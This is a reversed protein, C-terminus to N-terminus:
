VSIPASIPPHPYYDYLEFDAFNFDNISKVRPNIILFPIQKPERSLQVKVQELHNLYIHTDGLSLILEGLDLMTINAIMMTLLAYSAINFPLGLFTDVSRQYMSCSLMNNNVYFQFLLHCPPLAAQDVEGPNWATVIMRRDNPNSKISDIVRQIQDIIKGDKAEWSRWQKGYVPGLEGDKDAWENWITVGNEQLWKINTEGRLFWLLEYAISRFHLKKTTLLPFGSKLDFRIQRGFVSITGTGTRDDKKTGNLLIDELLDLYQKMKGM